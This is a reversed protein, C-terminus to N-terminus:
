GNRDVEYYIAKVKEADGAIAQRLADISEFKQEPRLYRVLAVEVRKGYLDGSFGIICTESRMSEKAVTPRIGINTVSPYIRGGIKAESAYVGYKPIVFEPPFFQNITPFGIIRGLGDGKEVPFDYSFAGGLMANAKEIEGQSILQRIKTSSIIEQGILIPDISCAEIDRKSLEEKLTDANGAGGKGYHYDYGCTVAKAGLKEVLIRDIFENPSYNMAARFDFDVVTFGMEELLRRKREETTLMPPPNGNVLKRPHIDFLMTVPVLNRRRAIELAKGLVARHGRHIGDFYGLGVATGQERIKDELYFM